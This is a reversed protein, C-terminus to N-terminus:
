RLYNAWRLLYCHRAAASLSSERWDLDKKSSELFGDM